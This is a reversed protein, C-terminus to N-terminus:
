IPIISKQERSSVNSIDGMLMMVRGRMVMIVVVIIGVVVADMVLCIMTRFRNGTLIDGAYNLANTARDAVGKAMIHRETLSGIDEGSMWEYIEKSGDFQPLRLIHQILWLVKCHLEIKKVIACPTYM